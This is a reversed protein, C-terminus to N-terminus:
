IYKLIKVFIRGKRTLNNETRILFKGEGRVTVVDGDCVTHSQSTIAKYNVFVQARSILESANSRSKGSAASVVCDLRLSSLSATKEKYQRKPVSAGSGDSVKTKVGTGGVKTLGDSIYHALNDLCFVFAKSGDIIIDGVGTRKLGLSLVTGLCAQHTLSSDNKTAIEVCAIPFDGEEAKGFVAMVREADDYGGFFAVSDKPFADSIERAELPSLFDSFFARGTKEAKVYLDYAHSFLKLTEDDAARALIKKRDTM